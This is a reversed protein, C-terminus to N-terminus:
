VTNTSALKFKILTKGSHVPLIERELIVTDGTVLASPSCSCCMVYGSNCFIDQRTYTNGYGTHPRAYMELDHFPINYFFSYHSLSFCSRSSPAALLVRLRREQQMSKQDLLDQQVNNIHFLIHVDETM